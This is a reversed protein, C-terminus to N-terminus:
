DQELFRMNPYRREMQADGCAADLFQEVRNGAPVGEVARDRWRLLAAASLLLDAALFVTLVGCVIRGPRRELSELLLSMWPFVFRVFALGLFGWLVTMQLSVRGGLNFAHRSYNWSASGFVAEQFLSTNYEVLTGATSFLFFQFAPGRDEFRVSIRYILVAGVGYITCFPGWLTTPHPEWVGWNLVCWVGELFNGAISGLLFLWLMAAPSVPRVRERDSEVTGSYPVPLVATGQDM